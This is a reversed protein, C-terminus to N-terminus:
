SLFGALHEKLYPATRAFLSVAAFSLLILMAIHFGRRHIRRALPWACLFGAVVAPLVFLEAHLEQSTIMGNWAVLGINIFGSPVASTFFGRSRNEDMCMLSTYIAMIPGNIGVAGSFFGAVFGLIYKLLRNPAMCTGLWDQILQVVVHTVIIVGLLLELVEMDVLRLTQVGLVIGPVAAAWFCLAEKVDMYKWFLFLTLMGAALGPFLSIVIASKSAIFLTILPLAILMGGMGTLGNIFAGCFWAAAMILNADM